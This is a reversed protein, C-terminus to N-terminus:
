HAISVGFALSARHLAHHLQRKSPRSPSDPALIIWRLHKHNARWGGWGNGLVGSGTQPLINYCSLGTDACSTVPLNHGEERAVDILRFWFCALRQTVEAEVQLHIM